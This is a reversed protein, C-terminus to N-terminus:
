AAKRVVVVQKKYDMGRGARYEAWPLAARLLDQRVAELKQEAPTSTDAALIRNILRQQKRNRFAQFESILAFLVSMSGFAILLTLM